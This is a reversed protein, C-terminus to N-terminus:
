PKTRHRRLQLEVIQGLSHLGGSRRRRAHLHGQLKRCLLQLDGFAGIVEPVAITLDLKGLVQLPGHVHGTSSVADHQHFLVLVENLQTSMLLLVLRCLVPHASQLCVQLVGVGAEVVEHTGSPILDHTGDLPQLATDVVLDLRHDVREDAVLVPQLLVHPVDLLDHALQVELLHLLNGGIGELQPVLHPIGHAPDVVHLRCPDGVLRLEGLHAHLALLVQM